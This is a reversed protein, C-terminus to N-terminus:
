RKRLIVAACRCFTIRSLSVYRVDTVSYAHGIVLGNDLQAEM